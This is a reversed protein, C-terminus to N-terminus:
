QTNYNTLIDKVKSTLEIQTYIEKGNEITYLKNNKLYLPLSKYFCNIIIINPNDNFIRSIAIVSSNLIIETIIEYDLLNFNIPDLIDDKLFTLKGLYTALWERSGKSINQNKILDIISEIFYEEVIKLSTIFDIIYISIYTDTNKNIYNFFFKLVKKNNPKILILSKIAAEKVREEINDNIVIKILYDVISVDEKAILALYKSIQHLLYTDNDQEIFFKKLFVTMQKNEKLLKTLFIFNKEIYLMNKFYIIYERKFSFIMDKNNIINNLKLIFLSPEYFFPKNYIENSFNPATYVNKRPTMKLKKYFKKINIIFQKRYFLKIRKHKKKFKVLLNKLIETFYSHKSNKFEELLFESLEENVFRSTDELKGLLDIYHKKNLIDHKFYGILSNNVSTIFKNNIENIKVQSLINLILFIKNLGLLDRHKNEIEGLLFEKDEILGGLFSFFMQMHPYFKWDRIIESQEEKSLTSVYL